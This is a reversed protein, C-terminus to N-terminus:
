IRKLMEGGSIYEVVLYISHVTEQIEYFNMIHKSEGLIRMINVENYLGKKLIV